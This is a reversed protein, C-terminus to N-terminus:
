SLKPNAKTRGVAPNSGTVKVLTDTIVTGNPGVLSAVMALIALSRAIGPKFESFVLLIVTAGFGGILIKAPPYKSGKKDTIASLASTLVVVLMAALIVKQAQDPSYSRVLPIQRGPGKVKQKITAPKTAKRSASKKPTPEDVGANMEADTPTPQPM